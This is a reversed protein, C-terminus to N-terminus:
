GKLLCQRTAEYLAVSAAQVVNMSFSNGIMPIHISADCKQVVDDEIGITENGFFLCFSNELEKFKYQNLEGSNSTTDVAINEVNSPLLNWMDTESVFKWDIKNISTTANRKIRSYKYDSEDGVFFVQQVGFNDCVRLLAGLNDASSFKWAVVIPPTEWVPTENKNFFTQNDIKQPMM